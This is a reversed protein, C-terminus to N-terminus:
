ADGRSTWRKDRQQNRKAELERWQPLVCDLWQQADERGRRADRWALKFVAGALLLLGDYDYIRM